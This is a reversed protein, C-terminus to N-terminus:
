VSGYGLWQPVNKNCWERYDAMTDLARFPEDDIVPKYTKVFGYKIRQSLPRKSMAEFECWLSDREDM